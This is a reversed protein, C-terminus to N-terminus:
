GRTRSLFLMALEALAIVTGFPLYWLSAVAVVTLWLTGLQPRAVYSFAGMIWILGLVVHVTKMPTGRPNVGLASVLKAWPGLQGAHPGSAPTTYDGRTLARMGDYVFWGGLAIALVPVLWKLILM